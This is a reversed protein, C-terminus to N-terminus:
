AKRAIAHNVQELAEKLRGSRVYMTALQVRLDASNPDYKVAQEYQTLAETRDGENM